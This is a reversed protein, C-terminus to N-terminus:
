FSLSQTPTYNIIVQIEPVLNHGRFAFAIIGLANLISFTDALAGGPTRIHYTVKLDNTLPTSVSLVWVMTLYGVGMIAGILSVGAISNLNPLQSVVGCLFAFVFYWVILSFPNICTPCAILYFLKLSSGGICILATSTGVTLQFIIPIGIM